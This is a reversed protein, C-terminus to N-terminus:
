LSGAQQTAVRESEVGSTTAVGEVPDEGVEFGGTVEDVGLVAVCCAPLREADNSKVFEVAECNIATPFLPALSAVFAAYWNVEVPPAAVMLSSLNVAVEAFVTEEMFTFPM